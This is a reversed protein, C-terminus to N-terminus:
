VTLKLSGEVAYTVLLLNKEPIFLLIDDLITVVKLLKSVCKVNSVDQAKCLIM